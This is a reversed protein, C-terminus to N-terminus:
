DVFLSLSPSVAARMAREFVSLLLGRVLSYLHCAYRRKYMLYGYGLQKMFRKTNM